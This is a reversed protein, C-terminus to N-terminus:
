RDKAVFIGEGIEVLEVDKEEPRKFLLREINHMFKIDKALPELAPPAVVCPIEAKLSMRSTKKYRWVASNFEVLIDSVGRYKDGEVLTEKPFSQHIIGRGDYLSRWIHDTIFPTVPHLLLLLTKLVSHLTQWASQQEEDTFNGGYNYARPKVLELYHPAFLNWVFNRIRNAPEFFDLKSCEDDVLVILDNVDALIFEDTPTPHPPAEVTPFTSIFRAVNWLKTLFKRAGIVRRRSYRYNTGLKAESAGWFRLADAGFEDMVEDPDVVNGRSKSMAEGREDLGMGSLRISKFAPGKTLHFVRLLSYYLWSRVIDVGQPRVSVPFAEEFVRSDRDCGSIWLASVSSDMWTDFTRTEGVFEECGCKRCKKFPPPERWPIFYRGPEPVHPTRCEACYWIPLETGYIRRRSIPWDTTISNVWNELYSFSEPPFFKIKSSTSLIKDKFEIQKLYYEKVNVFEVPNRSRWCIPVNQTTDEVKLVRGQSRLDEIIASRAEEVSLGEYKGSFENMKGDQDILVRDKLNLERFLRVDTYDGYSCLMMLGTGYERDVAENEMIPAEYGYIPVIAKKGRLHRYREDLPHTLVVACAGILEPRTTAISVPQDDKVDFKVYYLKTPRSVYEIEADAISTNCVPCWNTPRYDEYVLGENWHNIFTSQTFARYEPSDTRYPDKYNASIGLRRTLRLLDSEVEDLFRRCIEIFEDRELDKARIGYKKEVEIEVPLGNRDIGMPFLVSHGKLLFYRAVMDIQTYHVAAGVHWKGSAYPPPTDISYVPKGEVFRFRYLDEGEWKKLLDEEIKPSWRLGELKPKFRKELGEM